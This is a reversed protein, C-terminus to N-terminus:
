EVNQIMERMREIMTKVEIVRQGIEVDNAKSGITNTERFMEQTIFELKRGSNESLEMAKLFQDVHSSLRVVEESIDSRESFLSIERLLDSTQITVGHEALTRKLREELRARYEDGVLPARRRIEALEAAITRCNEKLDAAMAQGEARRMGELNDLAANLVAQVAPWDASVDRQAAADESVVGPLGLLAALPMPEALKWKALLRALQQRYSELATANLQYDEARLARQMSVSVQVTGRKIRERVLNEIEPELGGYGDSIRLSLKFYRSNVTRVEAAVSLDNEQRRAEGFGTMSLLLACCEEALAPFWEAPPGGWLRSGRDVGTLSDPL